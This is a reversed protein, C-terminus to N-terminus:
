STAYIEIVSFVLEALEVKVRWALVMDLAFGKGHFHVQDMLIFCPM